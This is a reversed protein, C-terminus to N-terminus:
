EGSTDGLQAQALAVAQTRQAEATRWASSPTEEATKVDNGHTITTQWHGSPLGAVMVPTEDTANEPKSALSISTEWSSASLQRATRSVTEAAMMTDRDNSIAALRKQRYMSRISAYDTASSSPTDTATELMRGATTGTRAWTGIVERNGSLYWSVPDMAGDVLKGIGDRPNTPGIVPLVMYFGEGFGWTALTQGFDEDHGEIGVAGAVDFVGGLGVTTNIFFRQTTQWARDGEGQLLDNALVVPTKLNDLVGNLSDLVGGEQDRIAPPVFAEYFAAMPRFLLTRLGENFQFMARNFPEIPDNSLTTEHEAVPPQKSAAKAPSQPLVLLPLGLALFVFATKPGFRSM